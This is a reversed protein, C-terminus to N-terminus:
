ISSTKAVDTTLQFCLSAYASIRVSIQAAYTTRSTEPFFLKLVREPQVHSVILYHHGLFM